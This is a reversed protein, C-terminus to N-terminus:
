RAPRVKSLMRTVSPNNALHTGSFRIDDTNLERRFLEAEQKFEQMKINDGIKDRILAYSALAVIYNKAVEPLNEFSINTIKNVVVDKGIEFTNNETDYLKKGRQVYSSHQDAPNISLTEGPIIVEGDINHKLKLNKDTNFWYGRSQIKTSTRNLIAVASSVDPHLNDIYFTVPSQGMSILMQNVADLTNM